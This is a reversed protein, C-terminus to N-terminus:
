RAGAAERIRQLREELGAVTWGSLEPGRGGPRFTIGTLGVIDAEQAAM